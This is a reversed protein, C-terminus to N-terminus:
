SSLREWRVWSDPKRGPWALFDSKGVAVATTRTGNAGGLRQAIEPRSSDQPTLIRSLNAVSERQSLRGADSASAIPFFNAPRFRALAPLPTGAALSSLQSALSTLQVASWAVKGRFSPMALARRIPFDGSPVRGRAPSVCSHKFFGAPNARLSNLWNAIIFIGAVSEKVPGCSIRSAGEGSSWRKEWAKLASCSGGATRAAQSRKYQFITRLGRRGLERL